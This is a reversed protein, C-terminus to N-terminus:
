SITLGGDVMLVQGTVASAEDSALFLVAFAVEEPTVIRNMPASKSWYERFDPKELAKAVMPTDTTGPAVCNVRVGSKGYEVALARTLACIGGKSASYAHAGCGIVANISSCNVIAGGGSSLMRPIIYKTTLFVSKLNIDLVASWDESPTDVVSGMAYRSSYGVGACNFLVDVRGFAKIAGEVLAAVDEEHSVDGVKGVIDGGARRAEDVTLDLNAARRGNAVVHAGERCFLLATSRGIGSGAGTIIVVKNRLRM